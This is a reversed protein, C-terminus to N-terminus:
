PKRALPFTPVLTPLAAVVNQEGNTRLKLETRVYQLLEKVDIVGDGNTDARGALGDFITQAFPSRGPMSNTSTVDRPNTNALVAVGCDEGAIQRILEEMSRREPAIPSPNAPLQRAATLSSEDKTITDLILLLRGSTKQLYSRLSHDPMGAAPDGFRSERHQFYLIDDASRLAHGAFYVIGVDDPTMNQQLWQFGEELNSRSVQLDTTVRVQVDRFNASPPKMFLAAFAQADGGAFPRNLDTRQSSSVGIAMVFLRPLIAKEPAVVVSVPDCMGVSRESEAKLVLQHKGPSLKANWTLQVASGGGATEPIPSPALQEADSNVPGPRGDVLLKLSRISDGEAPSVSTRIELSESDPGNISIPTVTLSVNPPLSHQIDILKDEVGSIRNLEKLAQMPGGLPLVRRILEPKYFRSRFRAAPYFTAMEDFGHQVHWGVFNEGGPSAAYYGQPTWAVWDDGGVFLSLTHEYRDLNWIQMTEDDSGTLLHKQDPSPTVAWVVDLHGPLRYIARGSLADFVIVSQGCGVAARNGSLLTRSRINVTPDYYSSFVGGFQKIVVQQFTKREISFNGWTSQARMFTYDPLPGFQLRDFSFTRQLPNTAKLSSGPLHTYGFAITNGDPSFGTSYIPMGESRLRRFLRGTDAEWVCIQDDCDGFIAYRGDPSFTSSIVTSLHGFFQAVVVRDLLRVM